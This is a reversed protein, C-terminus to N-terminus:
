EIQSASLIVITTWVTHSCSSLPSDSQLGTTLIPLVTLHFLYTLRYISLNSLIETM